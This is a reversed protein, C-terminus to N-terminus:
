WVSHVDVACGDVGAAVHKTLSEDAVLMMKHKKIRDGFRRSEYCKGDSCGREQTVSAFVSVADAARCAPLSDKIKQVLTPPRSRAAGDGWGRLGIGWNVKRASGVKLNFLWMGVVSKEM